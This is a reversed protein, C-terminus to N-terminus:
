PLIPIKYCRHTKLYCACPIFWPPKPQTLSFNLNVCGYEKVWICDNDKECYRMKKETQYQQYQWIGLGTILIFIVGFTILFVKKSIKNQRRAENILRAVFVVFCSLLYYFIINSIVYPLYIESRCIGKECLMTKYNFIPSNLVWSGLLSRFSIIVSLVLFIVFLIIKLVTPKIFKKM